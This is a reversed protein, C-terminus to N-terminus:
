LTAPQETTPQSAEGRRRWILLILLLVLGAVALGSFVAALVPL